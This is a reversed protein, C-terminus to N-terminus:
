PSLNDTKWINSPFIVSYPEEEEQDASEKTKKM